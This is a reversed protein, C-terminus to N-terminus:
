RAQRIAVVKGSGADGSTCYQSWAEMLKRRRNLMDGRQYAAETKDSLVHALAAEALERPFSTTEAAWDRFTSRFGHVTLASRAMDEQLYKRMATDSLPKGNLGPFLLAERDATFNPLARLLKLAADTLPVRHERGSKTRNSPVIWLAKGFDIEGFTARRTESSRVATLITFALAAASITNRSRLETFFTPLEAYPLAAFHKVSQVKSRKPFLNELHGRWRAPNEGSRYGQTAAWDLIREIRQRVRTATETKATWIPQLVKAVHNTDIASVPLSGFVPYAYRELTATWQAAHKSNRWGPKHSDIYQKACFEFTVSRAAELRVKDRHERREEIPDNGDRRLRRAEDARKRAEALSVDPFRGLGMYRAKSAQM